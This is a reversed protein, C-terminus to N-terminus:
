DNDGSNHVRQWIRKSADYEKQLNELEQQLRENRARMLRNEQELFAIIGTVEDSYRESM